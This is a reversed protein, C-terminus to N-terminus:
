FQHFNFVKERPLDRDVTTFVLEIGFKSINVKLKPLGASFIIDNKYQHWIKAHNILILGQKLIM